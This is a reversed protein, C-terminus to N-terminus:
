IGFMQRMALWLNKKRSEDLTDLDDAGILSFGQVTTYQYLPIDAPLTSDFVIIRQPSYVQLEAPDLVPRVLMLVANIDMRASSIIKRILQHDDASYAKWERALVVILPANFRYLEEQYLYPLVRAPIM